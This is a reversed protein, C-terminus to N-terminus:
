KQTVAQNLICQMQISLQISPYLHIQKSRWELSNHFNLFEIQVGSIFLVMSFGQYLTGLVSFHWSYFVKLVVPKTNNSEVMGWLLFM